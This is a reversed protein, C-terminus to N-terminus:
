GRLYRYASTAAVAGMAAATVVQRLGALGGCCDGAAYIGPVNTSMDPKVKIYGKEDVELGLKEAFERPPEFGIEVFVGDVALESKEGSRTDRLVIGKVRSDGKIEEVVKNYLIEIRDNSALQRQYYQQARLEGRRHVLYVRSAHEALLLAASAASDGGGIVAVRRGRFLPADCVACYSVGRGEFEEEGPVGLRRKRAGVAVIVARGRYLRGSRGKLEFFGSKREAAVIEDLFFRVGYSRVHEYMRNALEPGSIRKFGPYNEIWGAKAMQGGIDKSVVAVDLGYRVAYLTATLGAPGAGVVIVEASVPEARGAGLGRLRLAL